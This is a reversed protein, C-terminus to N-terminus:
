GSPKQPSLGKDGQELRRIKPRSCGLDEDSEQGHHRRKRARRPVPKEAVTKAPTLKQPSLKKDDPELRQIKPSSCGLDQTWNDRPHPRKPARRPGPKKAEVKKPAATSTEWPVPALDCQVCIIEDIM